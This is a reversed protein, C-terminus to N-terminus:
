GQPQMNGNIRSISLPKERTRGWYRIKTEKEGGRRSECGAGERGRGGMVAKKEKGLPISTDESPDKWM